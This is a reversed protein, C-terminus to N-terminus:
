VLSILLSEGSCFFSPTLLLRHKVKNILGDDIVSGSISKFLEFLAEVESVTVTLIFLLFYKALLLCFLQISGQVEKKIKIRVEFLHFVQYHFIFVYFLVTESPISLYIELAKVQNLTLHM